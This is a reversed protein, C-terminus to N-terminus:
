LVPLRARTPALLPSLPGVCCLSNKKAHDLAHAARASCAAVLVLWPHKGRAQKGINTALQPIIVPPSLAQAFSLLHFFFLNILKASAPKAFQRKYKQSTRQVGFGVVDGIGVDGSTTLM